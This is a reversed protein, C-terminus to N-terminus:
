KDPRPERVFPTVKFAYHCDVIELLTDRDLIYEPSCDAPSFVSIVPYTRSALRQLARRTATPESVSFDVCKKGCGRLAEEYGRSLSAPTWQKGAYGFGEADPSNSKSWPLEYKYPERKKTESETRFGSVTLKKASFERREGLPGKWVGYWETGLAPSSTQQVGKTQAVAGRDLALVAATTLLVGAGLWLASKLISCSLSKETQM